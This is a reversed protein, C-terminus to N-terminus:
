KLEELALNCWKQYTLQNQWVLRAAKGMSLLQDTSYKDLIRSIKAPSDTYISIKEWDIKNKFPRVDQDGILFPVVGLQMAEFFRFSSGGYGRPCLAIHSRLMINVYRGTGQSSDVISVGSVKSLHQAMEQRLKHTSLRGVFSALITKKRPAFWPIRHASSLLPIDIGFYSKRSALLQTTDGTNVVPGDDYQCITFTIKSNIIADDVYNQLESLGTKAYDHNVHWRTWYIPLYHWDAKSPDATQLRPNNKLFEFFDQEVGFDQNHLPYTNVQNGPM